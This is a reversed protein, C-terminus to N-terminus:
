VLVEVAVVNTITKDLEKSKTKPKIIFKKKKKRAQLILLAKPHKEWNKKTPNDMLLPCTSRNTGESGCESCKM